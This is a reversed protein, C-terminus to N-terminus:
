ERVVYRSFSQMMLGFMEFLLDDFVNIFQIQDMEWNTQELSIYKQKLQSSINVELVTGNEIYKEYLLHAIVKMREMDMNETNDKNETNNYVISSKPIADYLIDTYRVDIEESNQIDNSAMQVLCKKFQSVEIFCYISEACFERHMWEIFSEFENEINLANKLKNTVSQKQSELKNASSHMTKSIMSEDENMLRHDWMNTLAIKRPIIITSVFSPVTSNMLTLAFYSMFEITNLLTDPIPLFDVIVSLVLWILGVFWIAISAKFEYFFLFNDNLKKYARCKYYIYMAFVVPILYYIGNLTQITTRSSFIGAILLTIISLSYFIIVRTIVYKQNGYKHKNSLYWDKEAFCEDIQCKWQQNKSSHLHHLDFAILYLRTAKLYYILNSVPQMPVFWQKSSLLDGYLWIPVSIFLLLLVVATEAFVLTPYRKQVILLYKIANFRYCGYIQVIALFYSATVLGIWNSWQSM